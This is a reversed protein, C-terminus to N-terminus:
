GVVRLRGCACEFVRKGPGWAWDATKDIWKHIHKM